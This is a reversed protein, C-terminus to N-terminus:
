MTLLIVICIGPLLNQIVHICFAVWIAKLWSKRRWTIYGCSFVFFPWLVILGWVPFLLSHLAAWLLASLIAIVVKHKIFFSFIWIGFSLLLTECIPSIIVLLSFVLVPTGFNVRGINPTNNEDAIGSFALIASLLISPILSIIAMRFIYKRMPLPSATIFLGKM